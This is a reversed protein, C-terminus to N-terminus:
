FGSILIGRSILKGTEITSMKRLSLKQTYFRNGSPALASRTSLSFAISQRLLFLRLLNLKRKLDRVNQDDYAGNGM